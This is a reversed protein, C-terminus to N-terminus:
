DEKRTAELCAGRTEKCLDTIEKLAKRVRTAASRNQKTDIKAVDALFDEGNIIEQISNVMNEISIDSMAYEMIHTPPSGKLWQGATRM